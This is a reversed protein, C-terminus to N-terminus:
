LLVRDEPEEMFVAVAAELALTSLELPALALIVVLAAVAQVALELRVLSPALVVVAVAVPVSEEV